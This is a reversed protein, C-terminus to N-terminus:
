FRVFPIKSLDSNLTVSLMNGVMEPHSRTKKHLLEQSFVSTDVGVVVEVVATEPGYCGYKSHDWLNGM